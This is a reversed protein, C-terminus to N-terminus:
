TPIEKTLGLEETHNKWTIINNEITILGANRIEDLYGRIIHSRVGTAIALEAVFKVYEVTMRKKLIDCIRNIRQKRQRQFRDSFSDDWVIGTYANKMDKNEVVFRDKNVIREKEIYM